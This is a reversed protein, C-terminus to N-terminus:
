RPGRAIEELLQEQERLARATERLLARHGGKFGRM